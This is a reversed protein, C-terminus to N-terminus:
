RSREVALFVTEFFNMEVQLRQELSMIEAAVKFHKGFCDGNLLPKSLM